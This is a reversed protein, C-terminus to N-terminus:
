NSQIEVVMAGSKDTLSARPLLRINPHEAKLATVDAPVLLTLSSPALQAIDSLDVVRVQGPVYALINPKSAEKSVYLPGPHLARVAGIEQAAIRTQRFADPVLPMAIWGLLVLYTSIGIVVTNSAGILLPHRFWWAEFLLGGLAALALNAPMAYRTAIGGPWVLLVLTCIGAYLVLALMLDNDAFREKRALAVIAPALLLSGPLWEVFISVVFDLHDRLWHSMAMGDSLRSHSGWHAVDGPEVVALYWAGVIAGALANVFVFGPIDSWRRKVSLYAGVGLTFYAIPQPGKTLGAAGLLVAVAFWRAVTIRRSSGKWWVVFAAFLLTSLTVDPEATIFKQGIMSCAFWCLAGFV